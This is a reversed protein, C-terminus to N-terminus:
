LEDKVWNYNQDSVNDIAINITKTSDNCTIECHQMTWELDVSGDFFEKIEQALERSISM